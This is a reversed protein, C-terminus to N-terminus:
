VNGQKYAAWADREDSNKKDNLRNIYNELKNNLEPNKILKVVDRAADYNGGECYTAVADEYLNMQELLEGASDFSKIECLM